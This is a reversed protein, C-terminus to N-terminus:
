GSARGSALWRAWDLAGNQEARASSAAWDYAVAHFNVDIGGARLEITAYRAHPAGTEIVHYGGAEDDYAPLGVSGPNVVLTGGPLTASRPMHTHGCLAVRESVPGAREHVEAATAARAGQGPVVTELWYECDSRPSGHVMRVHPHPQLQQPLAALWARQEPTTQEYAFQDSDGGPAQACALLQREHNGAITPWGQAMLFAATERPWLPGSLIDGLNLILDADGARELHALVAELAPLNGHIDSLIALRM